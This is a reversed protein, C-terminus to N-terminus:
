EDVEIREGAQAARGKGASPCSRRPAASQARDRDQASARKFVGIRGCSLEIAATWAEEHERLRNWALEGQDKTIGTKAVV